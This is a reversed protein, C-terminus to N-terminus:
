AAKKGSNGKKLAAVREAKITELQDDFAKANVVGKLAELMQSLQKTPVTIATGGNPLTLKEHAYRLVIEAQDGNLKFCAEPKCQKGRKAVTFADNALLSLSNQILALVADRPQKNANTASPTAQGVVMAPFAAKLDELWNKSM